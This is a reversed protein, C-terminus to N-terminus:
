RFRIPVRVEETKEPIGSPNDNQLVLTGTVTKPMTFTLTGMFPVTGSVMSDGKAKLFGQAVVVGNSDLIKAPFSGEFFWPGSAEGRVELPSKVITFNEPAVVKVTHAMPKKEFHFTVAYEEDSIKKKSMAKPAVDSISIRYEGFPYPVEDSPFNRTEVIDGKKIMVNAVISGAQICKVDIPCRYDQVVANLTLRLDHFTATEHTHLVVTSTTAEETSHTPCPAFECRPGGRGVYSGDPCQLTEATCVSIADREHRMKLYYATGVGILVVALVTFIIKKMM